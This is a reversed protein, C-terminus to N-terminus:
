SAMVPYFWLAPTPTPFSVRDADLSMAQITTAHRFPQIEIINILSHEREGSEVVKHITGRDTPPSCLTLSCSDWRWALCSGEPNSQGPFAHTPSHQSTMALCPDCSSTLHSLSLMVPLFTPAPPCNYTELALRPSVLAWPLEIM